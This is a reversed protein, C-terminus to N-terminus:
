ASVKTLSLDQVDLPDVGPVPKQMEDMWEKTAEIAVRKQVYVGLKDNRAWTWFKKWDSVVLTRKWTIAATAERGKAGDLNQKSLEAIIHEKFVREEEKMAEIERELKLRQARRLYLDDVCAGVTKPFKVATTKTAM